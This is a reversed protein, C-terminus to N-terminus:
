LGKVRSGVETVTIMSM